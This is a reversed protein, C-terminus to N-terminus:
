QSPGIDFSPSFKSNTMLDVYSGLNMTYHPVSQDSDGLVVGFLLYTEVQQEKTLQDISVGQPLVIWEHLNNNEDTFLRVQWIANGYPDKYEKFGNGIPKDLIDVEVIKNPGLKMIQKGESTTFSVSAEGSAAQQFTVKSGLSKIIDTLFQNEFSPAVTVNAGSHLSISGLKAFESVKDSIKVYLMLLDPLGPDLSKNLAILPIGKDDLNLHREYTQLEVNWVVTVGNETKQTPMSTPSPEVTPAAITPTIPILTPAPISTATSSSFPTPTAVNACATVVMMFFLSLSIRKHLNMM